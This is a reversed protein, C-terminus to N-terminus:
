SALHSNGVARKAAEARRASESEKWKRLFCPIIPSLFLEWQFTPFFSAM